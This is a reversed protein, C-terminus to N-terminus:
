RVHETPAAIAARITSKPTLRDGTAILCSFRIHAYSSLLSPPFLRAAPIEICLTEVRICTCTRAYMTSLLMGLQAGHGYNYKSFCCHRLLIFSLSPAATPFSAPLRAPPRPAPPRSPHRLCRIYYLWNPFCYRSLLHGVCTIAFLKSARQHPCLPNNNM